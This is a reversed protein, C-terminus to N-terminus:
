LQIPQPPQGDTLFSGGYEVGDVKADCTVRAPGAALDGFRCSGAARAKRVPADGEEVITITDVVLTMAQGPGQELGFFSISRKPDNMWFQVSAGRAYHVNTLIPRCRASQDTGAFELRDCRGGLGEIRSPPNPRNALYGPVDASASMAVVATCLGVIFIRVTRM